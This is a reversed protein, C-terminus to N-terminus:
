GIVLKADPGPLLEALVEARVAEGGLMSELKACAADMLAARIRRANRFEEPLSLVQEM